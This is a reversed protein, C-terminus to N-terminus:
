ETVLEYRYEDSPKGKFFDADRVTAVQVLGLREVVAISAANRTDIQAAIVRVQHTTVLYELVRRLGETAYDHGQHPSFVLYAIHATWDPYVTAELTGVYNVTGSLRMAWNLWIECGDPSQRAELRRYREGLAQESVPPDQPIFSYLRDDLLFAYLVHAHTAELPELM